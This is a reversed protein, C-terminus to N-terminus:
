KGHIRQAREKKFGSHNSHFIAFSVMGLDVAESQYGVM